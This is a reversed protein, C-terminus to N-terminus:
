RLARYAPQAWGPIVTEASAGSAGVMDLSVLLQEGVDGRQYIWSIDSAWRGKAQLLLASAKGTSALDTAGGVRCSHAGWHAPVMNPEIRAVLRRVLERMQAVTVHKAIGRQGTSRRRFLPTSARREPPVPDHEVLRRLAAYTDSGGGDFEEILQPVKPAIGRGKKKLPGKDYGGGVGEVLKRMVVHMEEEAAKAEDLLHDVDRIENLQRPRAPYQNALEAAGRILRTMSGRGPELAVDIRRTALTGQGM